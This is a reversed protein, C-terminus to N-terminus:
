FGVSYRMAMGYDNPLAAVNGPDRRFFLNTDLGGGFADAELAIPDGFMM